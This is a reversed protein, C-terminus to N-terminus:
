NSQERSWKAGQLIVDTSFIRYNLHKASLDARLTKIDKAYGRQTDDTLSGAEKFLTDLGLDVMNTGQQIRAFSPEDVVVMTVQVVPPLQNKPNITADSNKSTSDYSYGPALKAGTADEEASLKPLFILAIVNDALVHSCQSKLPLTFWDHGSYDPYGSTYFYLTLNESPELMEMLRYRYRSPMADNIIAPRFDKDSNFEIFYGLTNMMTKLTSYTGSETMGLPAQFFVAHTPRPPTSASNGALGPGSIYRMESQRIYHDPVFTTGSRSAGNQDAYDWYTNLTAQSLRRTITEFAERAERFQEINANTYTWVRRTSDVMSILVMMILLILAMSVLLEVTTFGSRAVGANSTARENM